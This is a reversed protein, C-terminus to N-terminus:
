AEEAARLEAAPDPRRAAALAAAVAPLVAVALAFAIAQPLVHETIVPPTPRQAASTLTVAPVLLWAVLTGLLVGLVASPLSLLLKELCLQVAAERRTVGLAALLATEGRRRRVDAAISVWFGTIALLAAAAAMALLAQQPAASLADSANATALAAEGTIDTGAPVAATLSPPVGGGATSLWWETVPLPPLSQRGLYEQLSGLDTILAGGSATVTPFSTVEGVIQLPIEAGGEFAQVVSGIALSNADMYARTAVAPIAAVQDAQPLLVLQGPVIPPTPPRPSVTLKSTDATGPAFDFTAAQSTFQTPGDSPQVVAGPPLDDPVLSSAQETWGALSLGSLSLALGPTLTPPVVFAVTIATVRLPYSAREGGLPAVLLHPLGDAVLKGAAVIQYASGTQDLVTLTVTVPGIQAALVTTPGSSPGPTDASLTATLRITGARAGSQPAPLVAGPFAGAPTIANFLRSPPLPSEDARLLVVKAAQAADVGIVETSGTQNGSVAMAHTVGSGATVAGVGGPELPTPLNVQVDAGNTFAAQDSASKLWSAHQSFALTGTAVAMTLLLAAGGQRVPMRSLRWSALSATLRRGRVALSDATRAALPLLRLTAVSGAALALAPALALVPDIGVTGGGSAASYHRLQWCALVALVVLAIDLGAQAVGAVMAQRGRRTRAAGPSPTLWPALGPALLLASALVTVAIAAGLADPWIGALGALRIGASGLPGTTVLVGALRTGAFAGAVSVLASTPLVEAATLRTLQSRTAGRAVLLATEGERQTALLRAVAALAAIALVLLELATIVLMLRAVAVNSATEALVSSLGGVMQAGNLYSSNPLSQALATVSASMSDPDGRFATMDPQAVWSGSLLTLTSGLAAQSVVLPGYTSSGYSASRGSAPIFSLMWYSNAPGSGPRPVFVGTIDFSVLANTIRDRLRLVDGASVHLLAAASAPLAAPIAQRQGSGQATPWHGAVLTAHSAIGSMAAAQLLATNGKGASPPAAPLAGPVLGLPDSWLAAYFSFPLGPMAAALRSRLAAGGTAAQGPDSELTAVSVATNPAAALDHQVVLPLAQGAFVTLAAAVTAAVFIALVAAALVVWHATM